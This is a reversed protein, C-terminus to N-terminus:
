QGNAVKEQQPREQPREQYGPKQQGGPNRLRFKVMASLMMAKLHTNALKDAMAILSDHSIMLNKEEEALQERSFPLVPEPAPPVPPVPSTPDTAAPEPQPPAPKPTFLERMYRRVEDLRDKRDKIETQLKMGLVTIGSMCIDASKVFFRNNFAQFEFALNREDPTLNLRELGEKLMEDENMMSEAMKREEESMEQDPPVGIRTLSEGPSVATPTTSEKLARKGWRAKLTKDANVLAKIKSRKIGLLTAAFDYDGGSKELALNIRASEVDEM